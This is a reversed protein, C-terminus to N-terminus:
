CIIYAKPSKLYVGHINAIPVPAQDRNFSKESISTYNTRQCIPCLLIWPQQDATDPDVDATSHLAPDSDRDENFDFNLFTLLEFYIRQPGHVSVISAQSNLIDESCIGM